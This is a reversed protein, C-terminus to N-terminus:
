NFFTTPKLKDRSLHRFVARSKLQINERRKDPTSHTCHLTNIAQTTNWSWRSFDPNVITSEKKMLKYNLARVKNGPGQTERGMNQFDNGEGYM